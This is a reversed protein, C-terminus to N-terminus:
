ELTDIIQISFGERSSEEFVEFEENGGGLHYDKTSVFVSESCQNRIHRGTQDEDTLETEAGIEQVKWCEWSAGGSRIAAEHECADSFRYEQM